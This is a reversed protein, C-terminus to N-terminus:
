IVGESKKRKLYDYITFLIILSAPIIMVVVLGVRTKVFALLRGLYPIVFIQKGIINSGNLPNPDDANNADGRTTFKLAKENEINVVRHTVVTEGNPKYSIVDNVEIDKAEMEKVVILSGVGLIPEMSGSQVIYFRHGFISPAENSSRNQIVFIIMLILALIVIYFIIQELIKFINKITISKSYEEM